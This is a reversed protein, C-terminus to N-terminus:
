RRRRRSRRRKRSGRRKRSRRRKGGRLYNQNSKITWKSVKKKAASTESATGPASGSRLRALAKNTSKKKQYAPASVSKLGKGATEFKNSLAKVRGSDIAPVNKTANYLKRADKNVKAVQRQAEDAEKLTKNFQAAIKAAEGTEMLNRGGRRRRSRRRTRGM